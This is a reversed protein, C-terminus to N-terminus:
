VYTCGQSSPVGPSPSGSGNPRYSYVLLRDGALYLRRPEGPCPLHAIEHADPAPWADIVHLGDESLVYVFEGDNKIFDAEDVGRNELAVKRAAHVDNPEHHLIELVGFGHVFGRRDDATLAGRRAHM